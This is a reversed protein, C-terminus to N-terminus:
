AIISHCQINNRFNEYKFETLYMFEKEKLSEENLQTIATDTITDGVATRIFSVIARTILNTNDRQYMIVYDKNLNFNTVENFPNKNNIIDKGFYNLYNRKQIDKPVKSIEMWEVFKTFTKQGLENKVSRDFTIKYRAICPSTKVNEEKILQHVAWILEIATITKLPGTKLVKRIGVYSGVKGASVGFVKSLTEEKTEYVPQDGTPYFFWWQDLFPLSGHWVDDWANRMDKGVINYMAFELLDAENDEDFSIEKKYVRKYEKITKKANSKEKELDRLTITTNRMECQPNTVFYGMSVINATGHTLMDWGCTDKGAIEWLVKGSNFIWLVIIILAVVIASIKVMTKVSPKVQAKKNKIM